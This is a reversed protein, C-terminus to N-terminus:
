RISPRDLGDTALEVSLDAELPSHDSLRAERWAHLYRCALPRLTTSALLHDLRFGGTRDRARWYWSADSVNYGHVHRYCDVIGYARLGEFVAREAADKREAGRVVAWNGTRRLRQSFTIVRGDALEAQPSNFDGCVISPTAAHAAIMRCCAELTEIKPLPDGIGVPTYIGHLALPGSPSTVVAAAIREPWPAAADTPIPLLPWRCALLVGYRRKGILHAPDVGAFSSLHHPLGAAALAHQFPAMAAATVETLAVLDPTRAALAAVQQEVRRGGRQVNWCIVRM